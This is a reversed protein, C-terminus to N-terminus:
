IEGFGQPAFSQIAGPREMYRVSGRLTSGNVENVSM